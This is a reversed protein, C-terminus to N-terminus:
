PSSHDLLQLFAYLINGIKILASERCFFINIKERCPLVCFNEVDVLRCTFWSDIEASSMRIKLLFRRVTSGITLINTRSIIEIFEDNQRREQQKVRYTHRYYTFQHRLYKEKGLQRFLESQSFQVLSLLSLSFAFAARTM